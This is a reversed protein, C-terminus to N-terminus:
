RYRRSAPLHLCHPSMEKGGLNTQGLHLDFVKSVTFNLLSPFIKVNVIIRTPGSLLSLQISHHLENLKEPLLNRHQYLQSRSYLLILKGCFVPRLYIRNANNRTYLLALKIPIQQNFFYFSFKTRGVSLLFKIISKVVLIFNM